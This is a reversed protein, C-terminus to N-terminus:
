FKHILHGNNFLRYRLEGLLNQPNNLDLKQKFVFFYNLKVYLEDDKIFPALRHLVKSCGYYPNVFCKLLKNM